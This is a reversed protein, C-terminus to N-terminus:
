VKVADVEMGFGDDLEIFILKAGGEHWELVPTHALVKEVRQVLLMVQEVAVQAREGFLCIVHLADLDHGADVIGPTAECRPVHLTQAVLVPLCRQPNESQFAVRLFSRPYAGAGDMYVCVMSVLFGLASLEEFEGVCGAGDGFDGGLGGEVNGEGDGGGEGGVCGEVGGGAPM